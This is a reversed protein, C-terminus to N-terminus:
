WSNFNFKPNQNRAFLKPFFFFFTLTAFLLFYAYFYYFLQDSSLLNRNDFSYTLYVTLYNDCRFDLYEALLFFIQQSHFFSEMHQEDIM